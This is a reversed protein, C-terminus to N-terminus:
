VFSGHGYFSSTTKRVQKSSTLTSVIVMFTFGLLMFLTAIIGRNIFSNYDTRAEGAGKVEGSIRTFLVNMFKKIECSYAFGAGTATGLLCSIVKDGYFDFEPFCGHSVPRKGIIVLYIAFPLQVVTYFLGLVAVYFEYRYTPVDQFTVKIKVGQTYDFINVTVTIKNLAFIILCVALVLFTSVRLILILNAIRNPEM